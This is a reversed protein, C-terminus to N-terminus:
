KSGCGGRWRRAPRARERRRRAWWASGTSSRGAQPHNILRHKTSQHVRGRRSAFCAQCSGREHEGGYNDGGRAREADQAALAAKVEEVLQASTAERHHRTAPMPQICTVSSRCDNPDVRRESKRVHFSSPGARHEVRSSGARGDRLAAGGQDIRDTASSPAVSPTTKSSTIAQPPLM